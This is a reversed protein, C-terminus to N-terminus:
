AILRNPFSRIQNGLQWIAWNGLRGTVQDGDSIETVRTGIGRSKHRRNIELLLVTLGELM